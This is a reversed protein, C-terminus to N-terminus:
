EMRNGLADADRLDSLNQRAVEAGSAQDILMAQSKDFLLLNPGAAKITLPDFSLPIVSSRSGNSELVVVEPKTAEALVAPRQADLLTASLVKRIRPDDSSDIWDNLHFAVGEVKVDGILVGRAFYKGNPVPKGQSDNRDWEIILGDSASKFSDIEASKKLVRVLKGKSDYAGLSIAGEVPPPVFLLQHSNSEEDQAHLSHLLVFSLLLAVGSFRRLPEFM